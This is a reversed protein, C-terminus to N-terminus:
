EERPIGIMKNLDEVKVSLSTNTIRVEESPILDKAEPWVEILRKTTTVSNLIAYVNNIIETHKNNIEIAKKEIETFRISLEHYAPFLCHSKTPTMLQISEGSDDEGYYLKGSQLGGFAAYIGDELDDYIRIHPNFNVQLEKIGELAKNYVCNYYKVKEEGGLAVIRVDKALQDRERGLETHLEPIGAFLLANNVIKKKLDKTLKKSM